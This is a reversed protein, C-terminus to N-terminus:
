RIEVSESVVVNDEVFDEEITIEPIDLEDIEEMIRDTAEKNLRGGTKSLGGVEYTGDLLEYILPWPCHKAVIERLATAEELTDASAFVGDYAMSKDLKELKKEDTM